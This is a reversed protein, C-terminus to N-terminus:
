VMRAMASALNPMNARSTRPSTRLRLDISNTSAARATPALPIRIANLCMHGFAAPLTITKEATMADLASSISDARLKRPRPAWGGVGLQPTIIAVPMCCQVNHHILM